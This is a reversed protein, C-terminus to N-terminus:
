SRKEQENKKGLYMKLTVQVLEGCAAKVEWSTMGGLIRGDGLDFAM